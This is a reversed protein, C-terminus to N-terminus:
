DSAISIEFTVLHFWIDATLGALKLIDKSILNTYGRRERQRYSAMPMADAETPPDHIRYVTTTGM